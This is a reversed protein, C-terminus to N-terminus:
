IKFIREDTNKEERLDLIRHILYYNGYKIKHNKVPFGLDIMKEWNKEAEKQQHRSAVLFKNEKSLHKAAELYLLISLNNGKFNIPERRINKHKNHGYFITKDDYIKIFSVFGKDQYEELDKFTKLRIYGAIINEIKLIIEIEDSDINDYEFSVKNSKFDVEQFDKKLLKLEM